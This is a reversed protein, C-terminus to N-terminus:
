CLIGELLARIFQLLLVTLRLIWALVFSLNARLSSSFKVDWCFSSIRQWLERFLTGTCFRLCCTHVSGLIICHVDDLWISILGIDNLFSVLSFLFRCWLLRLMIWGQRQLLWNITNVRTNCRHSFWTSLLSWWNCLLLLRVRWFLLTPLRSLSAILWNFLRIILLRLLSPHGGNNLM